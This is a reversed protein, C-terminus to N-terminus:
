KEELSLVSVRRVFADSARQAFDERVAIPTIFPPVFEM